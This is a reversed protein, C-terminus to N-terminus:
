KKSKRVNQCDEGGLTQVHCLTLHTAHLLQPDSLAETHLPLDQHLGTLGCLHYEPELTKVQIRSECM